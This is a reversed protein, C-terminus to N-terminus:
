QQEIGAAKILAEWKPNDTKLRQVLERTSLPMVATTLAAFRAKVEPKALASRIARDLREVTALPTSAPAVVAIVTELTVGVGPFFEALTPVNPASASRAQASIAIPRMKGSSM